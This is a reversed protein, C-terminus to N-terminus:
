ARAHFGLDMLKKGSSMGELSNPESSLEFGPEKPTILSPSGCGLESKRPGRTYKPSLIYLM